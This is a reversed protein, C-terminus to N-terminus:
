KRSCAVIKGQESGFLFKGGAGAYEMATGGMRLGDATKDEVWMKDIPGDGLKRVDWFLVQADTSTSVCEFPTKGPLWIISYVPDRHSTEIISTEKPAEGVRTDFFTILGNYTGGVLLNADKPNYELCCLPSPPKVKTEPTNPNNVDWIYSEMPMGPHVRQDQFQMIAFSCALKRGADPHWSIKTVSRKTESPDKFVALTKASPADAGYNGVGEDGDFYEEYIDLSYNQMIDSQLNDVCSRLQRIYDEDKEVKKKYRLTQDKETYDVQVPALLSSLPTPTPTPIPIPACSVVVAASARSLM